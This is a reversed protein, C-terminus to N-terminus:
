SSSLERMQWAYGYDALAGLVLRHNVVNSIKTQPVDLTRHSELELFLSGGDRLELSNQM